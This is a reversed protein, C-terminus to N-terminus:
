LLRCLFLIQFLVYVYIYINLETAWDHGVRQLGMFWLVGPRGTWWWSGSDVWVWTWRTSSAMWGDWGRDDGRRSGETGGADPDKYTHVVQIGKSHLQLHVANYLLRVEAAGRVSPRGVDDSCSSQQGQSVPASLFCSSRYETSMVTLALYPKYGSM